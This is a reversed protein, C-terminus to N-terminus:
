GPKVAKGARIQDMVEKGYFGDMFDPGHGQDQGGDASFIQGTLWGSEPGALFRVARAIDDPEGPRGLPIEKSFLEIMSDVGPKHRVADSVTLGPRVGNIRIGASGLEFAAMRIFRELAAKAAGYISLGWLTQTAATSSVCVIVGGRGMLPVGHRTLLFAGTFNIDFEEKVDALERMLLPMFKSEGVASVIIDLRGALGHAFNLLAKVNDESSASGAFLEIRADPFQKALEARAEALKDKRRGTIVVSAGDRALGAACAMGIGQSAGTVIATKGKLAQSEM